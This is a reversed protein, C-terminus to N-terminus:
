LTTLGTMDVIKRALYVQVINKDEDILKMHKDIYEYNLIKLKKDLKKIIEEM